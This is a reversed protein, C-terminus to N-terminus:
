SFIFRVFIDARSAANKSFSRNRSYITKNEVWSVPRTESVPKRQIVRRSNSFEALNLYINKQEIAMRNLIIDSVNYNLYIIIDLFFNNRQLVQINITMFDPM